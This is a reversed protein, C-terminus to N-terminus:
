RPTTTGMVADSVVFRMMISRDAQDTLPTDVSLDFLHDGDDRHLMAFYLGSVTPRLLDILLDKSTGVLVFQAGLVNGPVGDRSEHITVWGNVSLTASKVVVQNGAAQDDVVVVNSQDSIANGVLATSNKQSMDVGPINSLDTRSLQTPNSRGIFYGVAGAVAIAVIVAALFQQPSYSKPM